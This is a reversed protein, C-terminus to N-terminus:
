TAEELRRLRLAQRGAQCLRQIRAIERGSLVGEIRHRRERM